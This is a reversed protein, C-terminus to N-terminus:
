ALASPMGVTEPDPPIRCIKELAGRPRCWSLTGAGDVSILAGDIISHRVSPRSDKAISLGLDGPVPTTARPLSAAVGASAGSVGERAPSQGSSIRRVALSPARALHQEERCESTLRQSVSRSLRDSFGEMGRMSVSGPAPAGHFSRAHFDPLWARWYATTEQSVLRAPYPRSSNSQVSRRPRPNGWTASADLVM